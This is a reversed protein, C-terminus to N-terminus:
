GLTTPDLVRFGHTGDRGLQAVLGFEWDLYAQMAERPADTGEYPRQYRDIRPSLLRQAGAELAHGAAAWAANGGELVQVPVDTLRALDAAAFWALASSGCTLVIRDAPPCRRSVQALDSRLLWAAGPVHGHVHRASTTLDLVRPPRDSALTQALEVVTIASVGPTLPRVAAPPRWAGTELPADADAEADIWGVTWGMQALWHATMPARVGDRAPGGDALVIRAGRVPAHVDTEQVLQGGPAHGFGPRHGAAYEDAGRVDWRYLTRIGAEAEWRALGAADLRQAGAAEALALARARAAQHQAEPVAGDPARRTAGHDLTQGALTWGITGNRLAAVPNPLGANILSQSGILSRTRGACNVIIATAPDPALQRARLALEGGPVSIGGPISMTHFEDYRRADLVVVDAGEQLLAQVSEAPLSPTAVVHEVLEGFAKSPVNVDRFLEGGADSWAQLGDLAADERGAQAADALLHVATHGLAQLRRAATVALGEGHDFVVIPVARRPLRWPAELEIRNVSLQAAWLPHAQAHPHEERVDLLAIEDGALLHRRVDAPDMRPVAIDPNLILSM